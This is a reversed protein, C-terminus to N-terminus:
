KTKRKCGLAKKGETLDISMDAVKRNGWCNGYNDCGEPNPGEYDECETVAGSFTPVSLFYPGGGVPVVMYCGLFRKCCFCSKM